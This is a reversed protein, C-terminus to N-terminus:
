QWEGEAKVLQNFSVCLEEIYGYEDAEFEVFCCDDSMWDFSTITGFKELNKHYVKDGIQADVKKM